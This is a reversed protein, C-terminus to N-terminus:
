PALFGHEALIARAAETALYDLFLRAQKGNLSARVLAAPYLIRDRVELNAVVTVQEKAIRADTAYIMAADVEGRRLYDLVQRVSSGFILKGQVAEWLGAARLAEKGYRGAPVSEPKGIGIREVQASSLDGLGSLPITSHIPKALVLTNEAFTRRSQMDILGKEQAQDMDKVSATIFIDVPAGQAIQVLLNGSAGFNFTLPVGPYRNEFDQGLAQMVNTTSAAASVIVAASAEAAMAQPAMACLGFLMLMIWIFSTLRQRQKM